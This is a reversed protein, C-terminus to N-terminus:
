TACEPRKSKAYLHWVFPPDQYSAVHSCGAPVVGGTPVRQFYVDFSPNATDVIAWLCVVGDQQECLVPKWGEPLPISFAAQRPLAYKYVTIM